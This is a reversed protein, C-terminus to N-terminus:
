TFLYYYWTIIKTEINSSCVQQAINTAKLYRSDLGAMVSPTFQQSAASTSNHYLYVQSVKIYLLHHMFQRRFSKICVVHCCEGMRVCMWVRMSSTTENVLVSRFIVFFFFFNWLFILTFYVFYEFRIHLPKDWKYLTTICNLMDPCM